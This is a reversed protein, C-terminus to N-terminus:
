SCIKYLKRLITKVQSPKTLSSVALLMYVMQSHTPHTPQITSISQQISPYRNDTTTSSISMCFDHTNMCIWCNYWCNCFVLVVVVLALALFFGDVVSFDNSCWGFCYCNSIFFRTRKSPSEDYSADADCMSADAIIKLHTEQENMNKKKKKQLNYVIYVTAHRRLHSLYGSTNLTPYNQVM